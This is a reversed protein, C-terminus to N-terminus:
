RISAGAFTIWNLAGPGPKEVAFTITACDAVPVPMAYRYWVYPGDLPAAPFTTHLLEKSGSGTRATIRIDLPPTGPVSATAFTLHSNPAIPVCAPAYAFGSVITFDGVRGLPTDIQNGFAGRGTPTVVHTGPTVAGGEIQLVGDVNEADRFAQMLPLAHGWDNVALNKMTVVLTSEPMDLCAAPDAVMDPAIKPPYLKLFAGSALVYRQAIADAAVCAPQPTSALMGRLDDGRYAIAATTVDTHHQIFLGFQAVFVIAMGITARELAKGAEARLSAVLGALLAAEAALWYPATDGSTSVLAGLLLAIALVGTRGLARGGDALWNLMRYRVALMLLPGGIFLCAGFAVLTAPAALADLAPHVLLLRVAAAVIACAVPAIGGFAGYAVAVPVFAPDVLALGIALACRAVTPYASLRAVDIAALAALLVGVSASAGLPDVVLAVALPSVAGGATAFLGMTRGNALAGIAFVILGFVALNWHQVCGANLACHQPIWSGLAGPLNPGDLVAPLRVGQMAVAVLAIAAAIGLGRARAPLSNL